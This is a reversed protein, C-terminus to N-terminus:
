TGLNFGMRWLIVPQTHGWRSIIKCWNKTWLSKSNLHISGGGRFTPIKSIIPGQGAAKEGQLATWVMLLITRQITLLWWSIQHSLSWIPLIPVRKIEVLSISLIIAFRSHLKSGPSTALPHSSHHLMARWIPKSTSSSSIIAAEEVKPIINSSYSDM